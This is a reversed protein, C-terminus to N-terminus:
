KILRLGSKKLGEEETPTEELSSYEVSNFSPVVGGITTYLAFEELLNVPLRVNYMKFIEDSIEQNTKFGFHVLEFLGMSMENVTMVTKNNNVLMVYSGIILLIDRNDLAKGIKNNYEM